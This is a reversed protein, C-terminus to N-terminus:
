AIAPRVLVWERAVVRITREIRGVPQQERHGRWLGVLEVLHLHLQEAKAEVFLHSRLFTTGSAGRDFALCGPRQLWPSFDDCRVLVDRGASVLLGFEGSIKPLNM